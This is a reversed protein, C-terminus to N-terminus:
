LKLYYIMFDSNTIAIYSDSISINIARGTKFQIWKSKVTSYVCITNDAAVCAVKGKPSVAVRSLSGPIQTWGSGTWYFVLNSPDVCWMTNRNAVSIQVAIGPIPEWEDVSGLYRWLSGTDNNVCVITGDSGISVWKANKGIRIWGTGETVRQYINYDGGVGVCLSPSRADVQLLTGRIQDYLGSMATSTWITGGIATGIVSNDNGVAITNLRNNPGPDVTWTQKMALDTWDPPALTIGFCASLTDQSGDTNAMQFIRNFYGQIGEISGDTSSTIKQIAAQDVSGGKIPAITGSPTCTRFPTTTNKQEGKRIGSYRNGISIYTAKVSSKRGAEESGRSQESGANKYLYDMCEPSLPAEKPVLGVSGDTGAVIEECPSAIEFGFLKMAADNVVERTAISGGPLLGTTAIGYLGNVYNSIDDQSGKQLEKIAADGGVTPSLTGKVGDGGAATFLSLLCQATYPPTTCPSVKGVALSTRRSVLPKGAVTAIDEDYTPPLFTAPVTCRFVATQRTGSWIWYQNSLFKPFDKAHPSQIFGSNSFSGLRKTDSTVSGEFPIATKYANAPDYTNEWQALLGRVGRQIRGFRSDRNAPKDAFALVTTATTSYDDDVSPKIGYCTAGALDTPEGYLIIGKQNGCGDTATQMPYRSLGDSVHGGSCWNAGAGYAEDVEASTALRADLSKCMLAASAQTFSYGNRYLGYVEPKGKTHTAFEQVVNLELTDGEVVPEWTTLFVEKTDNTEMAAIQKGRTGDSGVRYLAFTTRGTGTPAILRLTVLFSRNKSDYVFPGGPIAQACKTDVVAASPGNWGGVSSADNCQMRNVGKECSARDVFFYGVPCGGATPQPNALARDDQDSYLGGVWRGPTTDTSATGDRICVGCIGAFAPDDLMACTGLGSQKECVAAEAAIKNRGPVAASTPVVSIRTNMLTDSGPVSTPTVMAAQLDANTTSGTPDDIPIVRNLSKITQTAGLPNYRNSIDDTTADFSETTETSGYWKNLLFNYQALPVVIALTVALIALVIVLFM